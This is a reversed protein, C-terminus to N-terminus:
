SNAMIGGAGFEIKSNSIVAAAAAGAASPQIPINGGTDPANGNSWFYSNNVNLFATGAASPAFRLGLASGGNFNMVMLQRSATRAYQHRQHRDPRYQGGSDVPKAPGRRYERRQYERREHGGGTHFRLHRRLRDHDVQHDHGRRLRGSRHLQDRWQRGDELHRGRLAQM